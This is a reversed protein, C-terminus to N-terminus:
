PPSSDNGSRRIRRSCKILSLATTDDAFKTLGDTCEREVSPLNLIFSLHRTILVRKVEYARELVEWAKAYNIGDMAFIKIKNAAEDKLAAKLYYLKDIDSLDSHSDILNHFANKFSLWNEFRGDFTPLPAEPLKIRRGKNSTLPTSKSAHNENNSVNGNPTSGNTHNLHNEVKGALQYFRDQIHNLEDQHNENPELVILEDNLDEFAHHLETLRAMRLKLTADDLKGKDFLNTVNTIQSKLSIRKQILLKLRESM